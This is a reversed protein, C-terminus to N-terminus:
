AAAKFTATVILDQGAGLSDAHQELQKRMYRAAKAVRVEIEYASLKRM